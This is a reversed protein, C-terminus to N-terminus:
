ELLNLEHLEANLDAFYIDNSGLMKMCLDFKGENLVRDNRRQESISLERYRIALQLYFRRDKTIAANKM